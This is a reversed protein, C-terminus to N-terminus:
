RSQSSLRGISRIRESGTDHVKFAKEVEARSAQSAAGKPTGATVSVGHIKIGEEAEAAKRGLRSASERSVGLRSLVEDVKVSGAIDSWLHSVHGGQSAAQRGVGPIAKDAANFAKAGANEAAVGTPTILGLGTGVLAGSKEREGVSAKLRELPQAGTAAMWINVGPTNWAVVEATGVVAANWWGKGAGTVDAGEPVGPAGPHIPSGASAPTPPKSHIVVPSVFHFGPPPPLDQPLDSLDIPTQASNKPELGFPDIARLAQGGVYAYVNLDAGLVHIALPDASVWRNLYPSLFRKGFYQLGVQVDEEKGTFRYDERFGKWREPRYDSEAGGYAQFTSREVLEGTAKDLVVSASGLHDGLEFLVHTQGGGGLATPVDAEDWAVRALRVGNVVLYPVETWKSREYDPLDIGGFVGYAARRLELTDFVYVTHREANSSDVATKVIRQDGSDYAYLLEAAPASTPLPTDVSGPSSVDWRRARVLRGVEDWEYAFVQSCEAGMPLCPGNRAVHLRVLNGGADYKTTLTGSRPSPPGSLNDAAKLQYPKAADNTITGLSRDYFGRADDETGSTNGLWDYGFTQWLVRKAFSVHPSPEARRPDSLSSDGSNEADFPSTWDDDGGQYQYDVRSARYLDDYEIKKTVPKAGAPWESEIRWDRIEVPNNVEDYTFDEDQLLLQYSPQHDAGFTPAPAYAPPSATWESPPGRYTQVSKLRRRNDYTFSTKTLAADGYVVNRLLGDASRDLSTVLTGYSGGATALTGRASYSKTVASENQTGLLESITAGTTARTDRDAADYEFNRLYWTSAYRDAYGPSPHPKAVRVQEEVLRGRGDFKSWSASGRDWVAVLQGKSFGPTFGLPPERGPPPSAPAADFQYIAEYNDLTAPNGLTYTEHTAECPSYDEAILRGAGDYLYNSGCGRADSTALLDGQDDYAYRWAKIGTSSPAANATPDATFNETTNPEVNVLLRGLSDYRMWRVVSQATGAHVREILIPEGTPLYEARTERATLAGNEKFREIVSVPRGHGDFAETLPTGQHPGPGIDAADALDAALAHYTSALTVTGDLDFTQLQRGFADYRQRGYPANTAYTTLDLNQWAAASFSHELYKRRVAGKADFDVLGTVIWPGDDGAAPDAEQLGVRARGFGDIFAISELYNAADTPDAGDQTQTRIASYPKGLDQPLFYEVVLSDVTGAGGNPSARRITQLRGLEDYSVYSPQMNVDLFVTVLELGRDYAAAVELPSPSGCGATYTREATPLDAFDPDYDVERCRQSTPTGTPASAQVLNGFIPDYAMTAVTITGDGSVGPPLPAVAGGGSHFRDIGLTGSLVAAVQTPNGNSDYTRTNDNRIEPSAGKVYSRGTRWLWGTPDGPPRNPETHVEIPEDLATCASGALCGLSTALTRNGFPDVEFTAGLEARGTSQRLSVQASTDVGGSPLKGPALIELEVAPVTVTPPNASFTGSTDYRIRDVREVFAHRVARGDLGVYLERLRYKTHETELYHGTEDLEETVVPLGKLAERPNDRWREPISCADVGDSGDEDLCEGLLFTSESRDTPSNADGIRTVSAHRFGRLERQQGDFVPDAYSFERAYEGGLSDRETVSKVIHAVAPARSSWPKGAQDAAVMEATSTSYEIETTKGLGNDVSSLLWPRVGGQLDIYKYDYGDGWLIDRTGSGDMDVLRVRDNPPQKPPTNFMIHRDTWSTGNVNLYIDVANFRVEVLDSLGDGNVDDLLLKGEGVIGYNPSQTMAIHRDQGYTGSPCDDREGAGWFGNGRGPWYRIDGTRVRVIDPIGDGNMDGLFVDPDSFQIPTASWPLCSTVPDNLISATAAGTRQAKGFQGDGTPYRGLSFFTEMETGTTVVVDVLGDFNVDFVRIKPEDNTFDIKADQQSATSISRGVWECNTGVCKPTLVEYKKVIPMHVLDATGDGDLDLPRVNANTFKIVNEDTGPPLGAPNVPMTSATFGLGLPNGSSGALAGNLYLGHKGNFLGAATVVVDPLADANVDFLDTLTEDVSYKPSGGLTLVKEAFDEFGLDGPTPKVHTYGLKIPPLKQCTTASGEQEATQESGSCRGEVGVEALLSVHFSDDYSLTYRRVRRFDAPNLGFTKSAVEVTALRWRQDIRWGSRFSSTPDPRLAWGLHTHHAFDGLAAATPNAVPSTDYIDTLYSRGADKAYRYVVVNSPAPAGAAPNANGQTDYQRVLHWRYIEGANYPSTEIASEYGTENLPVGLEMTVGSKSQVRWSRHNWHWFFRLFSGEVRARFYEWGATAWVPLAEGPQLRGGCGHTPDGVVCIPILEQGGNFVFRDREPHWTTGDDYKPIGRDTQRAIFPVPLDWGVGAVGFGMASSYSLGLAPEAGGRASPLTFPISFNAIGTSLQSSFSEDMGHITGSGKPMSIAQSTVGSKDAGTPLLAPNSLAGPSSPAQQEVPKAVATSPGASSSNPTAAPPSSSEPQASASNTVPPTEATTVDATNEAPAQASKTAGEEARASRMPVLSANFTVLTIAALRGRHRHMFGLTM